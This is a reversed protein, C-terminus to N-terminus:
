LRRRTATRAYGSSVSRANNLQTVAVFNIGGAPNDSPLQLDQLLVNGSFSNLGSLSIILSADLSGRTGSATSQSQSTLRYVM